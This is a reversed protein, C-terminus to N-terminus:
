HKCYPVDLTYRSQRVFNIHGLLIDANYPNVFRAMDAKTLACLERGDIQPFKSPDLDRLDYERSVWVLWQRVHGSTWLSPDSLLYCYYSIVSTLPSSM